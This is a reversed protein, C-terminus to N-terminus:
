RTNGGARRGAHRRRGFAEPAPAAAALERWVLGWRVGHDSVMVSESGFKEMVRALIMTGAFIVDAREELLGPLKRREELRLEGFRKLIRMVESRALRHGHVLGPDYSKLGLAVACVTTVTGAIGVLLDPRLHWKPGEIASDIVNRLQHTEEASPPDHRIIRETLRVSGIQLSVMELERGPEARIFETSGGGIDVILLSKQPDIDLGNGVALHSLRAETDGSVVELDVGARSKASAIFAAGDTADRLASTAASVIKQAGMARAREAFEAITDLTRAACATDLRGTKDVGRGLRTIRSFDALQRVKGDPGREAVLMLVTNTGVDLAGIKM